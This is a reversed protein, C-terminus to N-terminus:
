PLSRQPSGHTKDAALPLVNAFPTGLCVVGEGNGLAPPITPLATFGLALFPTGDKATWRDLRLKGERGATPKPGPTKTLRLFGLQEPPISGRKRGFFDINPLVLLRMLAVAVVVHIGISIALSPSIRRKM